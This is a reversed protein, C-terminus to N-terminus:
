ISKSFSEFVTSNSSIPHLDLGTRVLICRFYSSDRRSPVAYKLIRLCTIHIVKNVFLTHCRCVNTGLSIMVVSVSLGVWIPCSVPCELQSYLRDTVPWQGFVGAGSDWYGFVLPPVNAKNNTCLARSKSAPWDHGRSAPTAWETRSVSGDALAIRVGSLRGWRGRVGACAAVYVKSSKTAESCLFYHFSFLCVTWM